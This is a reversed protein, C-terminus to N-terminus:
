PGRPAPPPTGGIAPLQGLDYIDVTSDVDIPRLGPTGPRPAIVQIAVFRGDNSIVAGTAPLGGLALDAIQLGSERDFIAVGSTAFRTELRPHQPLGGNLPPPTAVPTVQGTRIDIRVPTAFTGVSMVIESGGPALSPEWFAKGALAATTQRQTTGDPWTIEATLGAAPDNLVRVLAWQIPDGPAGVVFRQFPTSLGRPTQEYRGPVTAVETRALTKTDIAELAADPGAPNQRHWQVYLTSSDPSFGVLDAETLSTGTGRLRRQAGTETDILLLDSVASTPDPTLALAYTRGDHSLMGNRMGRVPFDGLRGLARGSPLRYRSIRHVGPGSPSRREATWGLRDLGGIPWTQGTRGSFDLAWLLAAICCAIAALGLALRPILRLRRPRGRVPPRPGGRGCEPCKADPSLWAPGGDPDTGAIPPALEQNCRRCYIRGRQRPRHLTRRISLALLVLTLLLVPAAVTPAHWRLRDILTWPTTPQRIYIVPQDPAFTLDPSWVAGSATRELPLKAVPQLTQQM